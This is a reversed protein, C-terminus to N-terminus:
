SFLSLERRLFELSLNVKDLQQEIEEMKLHITDIGQLWSDLDTTVRARARDLNESYEALEAAIKMGVATVSTIKAELKAKLIPEAKKAKEIETEVKSVSKVLELYKSM